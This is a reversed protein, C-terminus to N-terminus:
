IEKQQTPATGYYKVYARYFSSYDNFGCQPYVHTPQQGADMLQKAKVLRKANLYQKVTVGTSDRFIRCLQSKSIYFERCIDDLCIRQSINQNLYRMIRYGIPDTSSDSYADQTDRIQCLECLLPILGAFISVRPEPSLRMMTSFYHECSGGRFQDPRYRNQKGPERDLFPTSLHGQPDLQKLVDLNFHLVMREYPKSKDLEIYHSEAGQMLLLDGKELPYSNGEIHFVGHGRIFYYLEAKEHTHLAFKAPDPVQSLTHSLGFDGDDYQVIASM